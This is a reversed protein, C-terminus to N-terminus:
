TKGERFEFNNLDYVGNNFGILYNNIDLKETFNKDKNNNIYYIEALETMINNKQGTEGFSKIINKLLKLKNKDNDNTKYYNILKLYIEKLKHQIQHRLEMNKQGINKGDIIKM